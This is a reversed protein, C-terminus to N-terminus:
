IKKELMVLEVGPIGNFVTHVIGVERYGLKSYFHRAIKNRANTDMRLVKCCQEKALNEWYAVFKTGINNKKFAPEVVLTHLVAIEEDKAKYMWDCELYEKGQINNLIASAVVRGDLECVYLDGRVVAADATKRVPYIDRKWGTTIEGEEEMSHINKYIIEVGDLDEITAKRFIEGM